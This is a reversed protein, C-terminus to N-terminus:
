EGGSGSSGGDSDKGVTEGHVSSEDQGPPNSDEVPRTATNIFKAYDFELPKEGSTIDITAATM